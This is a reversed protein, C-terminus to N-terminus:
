IHILSLVIVAESSCILRYSRAVSLEAGITALEPKTALVVARGGQRPESAVDDSLRVAVSVGMSVLLYDQLDKAVALILPAAERGVVISWGDDLLVEDQAPKAEPDRRDSQHVIDLRKRFDYAREVM